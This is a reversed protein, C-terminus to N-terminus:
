VSYYIIPVIIILVVILIIIAGRWWPYYTGGKELHEEIEEKQLSDYAYGAALMYLISLIMKPMKEINFALFLAIGFFLIASLWTLGVYKNKNVAKFNVSMFYAGLLPGGLFAATQIISKTYVSGKEEPEDLIEDM